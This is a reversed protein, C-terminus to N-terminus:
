PAASAAGVGAKGDSSLGVQVEALPNDCDRFRQSSSYTQKFVAPTFLSQIDSFSFYVVFFHLEFGCSQLKLSLEIM